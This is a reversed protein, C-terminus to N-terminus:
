RFRRAFVRMLGTRLAQRPARMRLRALERRLATLEGETADREATSQEVHNVVSRESSARENGIRVKSLDFCHSHARIATDRDISSPLFTLTKNVLYDADNAFRPFCLLVIPIDREALAHMCNHFDVALVRMQDVVSASFIAGGPTYWFTEPTKQSSVGSGHRRVSAQREVVIRSMAAERLERIPVFAVDIKM